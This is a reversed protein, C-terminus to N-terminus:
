ARICAARHGPAKDELPPVITSCDAIALPCRDRFACGSPLHRLDPVQGPIAELREGAAALGPMARFLAQTYPHRPRDFIAGVPAQEVIRGAYMIAVEDAQEAVVGLDHTILLLAMGRRARLDRLLELIGAQITVDLATTPEDAILVQPHCSIAMAIMVRQRMGGSLQHPFDRARDSPAPIGVEGLLEVARDWAGARGVDTHLRIAEAIQSGVTFVPNLSTMPEQFIMALRAGRVARMEREPLTTLERGDLRVHGGTMRGPPPVLRMLSLATMSKGCGSEGVLGLVRGAELTFSVGAVARAPPGGNAPFTVELGDVDLLAM